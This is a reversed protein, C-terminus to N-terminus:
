GICHELFTDLGLELSLEEGAAELLAEIRSIQDRIAKLENMASHQDASGMKLRLKKLLSDRRDELSAVYAKLADIGGQLESILQRRRAELESRFFLYTDRSLEGAIHKEDIELLRDKLKRLEKIIAEMKEVHRMYDEARAIRVTKTLVLGRETIAVDEPKVQLAKGDVCWITLSQPKEGKKELNIKKVFGIYKGSSDYVNLGLLSRLVQRGKLASVM